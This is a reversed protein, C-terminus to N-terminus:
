KLGPNKELYAALNDATVIEPPLAIMEQPGDVGKEIVGATAAAAKAGQNALDDAGLADVVGQRLPPLTAATGDVFGDIKVDSRNAQRIANAAPVVCCSSPVWVVLHKASGKPHEGLWANVSNAVSANIDTVNLENRKVKVNSLGSIATNLGDERTKAVTGPSYGIVLMSASDKGIESAIREGLAKGSEPGFQTVVRYGQKGGFDNSSVGLLPIKAARAAQVGAQVQNTQWLQVAIADVGRQVFTQMAQVASAQSGQSDIGTVTYGLKKLSDAYAKGIVASPTDANLFYVVGVTKGKGPLSTSTTGESAAATGSKGGDDSSGCAGLALASLACTTVALVSRRLTRGSLRTREFGV